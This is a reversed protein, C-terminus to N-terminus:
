NSPRSLCLNLERAMDNWRGLIKNGWVNGVTGFTLIALFFLYTKWQTAEYANNSAVVAAASVLQAAYTLIRPYENPTPRIASRCFFSSNYCCDVLWRYQDM